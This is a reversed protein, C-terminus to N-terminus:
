DTVEWGVDGDYYYYLNYTNNGDDYEAPIVLSPMSHEPLLPLEKWDYLQNSIYAIQLTEKNYLAYEYRNDKMITLYTSQEPYHIIRKVINNHNPYVAKVENLRALELDFLSQEYELVLYYFYSGTFLDDTESIVYKVIEGSLSDPFIYLQSHFDSKERYEKLDDLYQEANTRTDTKCSLLLLPFVLLFGFIKTKNKM